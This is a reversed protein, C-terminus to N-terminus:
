IPAPLDKWPLVQVIPVHGDELELAYSLPVCLM